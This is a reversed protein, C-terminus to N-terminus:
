VKEKEEELLKKVKNIEKKSHPTGGVNFDLYWQLVEARTKLNNVNIKLNDSARCMRIRDSFYPHDGTYATNVECLSSNNHYHGFAPIEGRVFKRLATLRQLGDVIIFESYQGKPIPTFHGWNPYNFYLVRGTMGGRLFFEVFAIQQEKTWVHGRQFDPNLVLPLDKDDIWEVIKNELLSLPMNTEYNGVSTMEPIDSFKM